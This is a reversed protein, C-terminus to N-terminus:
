QKGIHHTVTGFAGGEAVDKLVAQYLTTAEAAHSLPTSLFPM